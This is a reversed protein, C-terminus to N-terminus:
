FIIKVLRQILEEIPMITLLLPLLPLVTAVVLVMAHNYSFPVWRMKQIVAFSNDLDALSQIDATGLIAENRAGGRLWKKDFDETYSTALTGYERLGDRRAFYLNPTFVTLPGLVVLLAFAALAAITWRFSMLNQGAYLIRNAIIGALAAGQAFLVPSFGLCSRALFGLGGARDPHTPLLKLNLRSVRWMLRFWIVLRM